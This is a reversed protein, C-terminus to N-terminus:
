KIFYLYGDEKETLKYGTLGELQTLESRFMSTNTSDGDPTIVPLFYLMRGMILEASVPSDFDILLVGDDSNEPTAEGFYGDISHDAIAYDTKSHDHFYTVKFFYHTLEGEIEGDNLLDYHITNRVSM